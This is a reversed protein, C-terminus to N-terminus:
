SQRGCHEDETVPHLKSEQGLVLTPFRAEDRRAIETTPYSECQRSNQHLVLLCM